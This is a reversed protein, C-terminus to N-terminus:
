FNLEVDGGIPYGTCTLVRGATIEDDMLVENHWMWVKGITCTAACTGCQGSECSYPVPIKFAKAAQLITQPYQTDFQYENEGLILRVRHVEKDPPEAKRAPKEINFIEKRINYAATGNNRLVITIMRMYEFPGCLYFLQKDPSGTIYQQLFKELVYIGLRKHLVGKESSFLFEIKFRKAFRDQLDKLQRYFIANAPSTNSYILLLNISPHDHLVTKIISYIPTIGSGAAFFVLQQYETINEPLTFFGSAGITILEDGEQAKDILWRSYEGNPIRKVTIQLPEGLAPSSSISYNRRAEDGNRKQFIFTLFQGPIYNIAKGNAAELIFTCADTAEPIIQKIRLPIFSQQSNDQM